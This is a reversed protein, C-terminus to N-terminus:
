CCFAAYICSACRSRDETPKFPINKDLITKILERVNMNFDPLYDRVDDVPQKNIAIDASFDEKAAHQVYVLCPKVPLNTSNSVIGSYMMAQLYYDAHLKIKDQCFIDEVAPM